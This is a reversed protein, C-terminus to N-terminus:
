LSAIIIWLLNNCSGSELIITIIDSLSFFLMSFPFYNNICDEESSVIKTNKLLDNKYLFVSKEFLNKKKRKVIYKQQNKYFVIITM